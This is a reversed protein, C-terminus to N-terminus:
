HNSKKSATWVTQRFATTEMKRAENFPALLQRVYSDCHYAAYNKKGERIKDRVVLEGSDFRLQEDHTLDGRYAEGHFTGIFLGGPKLLRLIEAIWQHHREESLHTFVSICYIADFFGDEAPIPPELGNLSFHIEPWNQQCWTITDPNYDSGWLEWTGGNVAKLHQLVRAPGCGWELVKLFQGPHEASIIMSIEHAHEQGSSYFGSLDCNGQIDYLMMLPPVPVDPYRKRFRNNGKRSLGYLRLFWFFDVLQLLHLKRLKHALNQRPTLSM